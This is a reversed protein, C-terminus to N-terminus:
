LRFFPIDGTKGDSEIRFLLYDSRPFIRYARRPYYPDPIQKDSDATHVM